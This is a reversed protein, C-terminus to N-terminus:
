GTGPFPHIQQQHAVLLTAVDVDSDEDVSTRAAQRLKGPSQINDSTVSCSFIDLGNRMVLPSSDVIYLSVVISSFSLSLFVITLLSLDKKSTVTFCANYLSSPFWSARFGIFPQTEWMFRHFSQVQLVSKASFSRM